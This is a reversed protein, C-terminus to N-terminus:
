AELGVLYFFSFVMFALFVEDAGFTNTLSARLRPRLSQFFWTGRWSHPALLM